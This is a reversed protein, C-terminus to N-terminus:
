QTLPNTLSHTLPNTCKKKFKLMKLVIKTNKQHRPRGPPLGPVGRSEGLAGQAGGPHRPPTGPGGPPSKPDGRPQRLSRKPMWESTM